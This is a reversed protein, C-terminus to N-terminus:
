AQGDVQWLLKGTGTSYVYVRGASKGGASSTPASTTFDPVEDGDVDGINRAIWGFQDNTAEGDWEHIIKVKEVFPDTFDEPQPRLSAFRPDSRLTALDADEAVGTFDAKKTAKAQGLWEFAKEKDGKLASIAGLHYLTMVSGPDFALAKEYARAAQDWDRKEKWAAGLTRWARANNPDNATIVQVIKIAADPDKVQLEAEAVALSPATSDPKETGRAVGYALSAVLISGFLLRKWPKPM